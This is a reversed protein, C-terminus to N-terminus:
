INGSVNKVYLTQSSAEVMNRQRERLKMELCKILVPDVKSDFKNAFWHRSNLLWRLEAAGYICTSRRRTGTCPPYLQEELYSWKVLRVKSELDSVERASRPLEGPVGPVRVMSAWFHEDPSYTDSSWALFDKAVLSNNIYLVFERSLVFYASGSFVEINHPAADKQLNSMVPVMGYEFPVNQLEYHYAFREKKSDSPHVSELMNAGNLMKLESVLEYNSRLPFDQGCLNIIYKWQISSRLLDSLCNLDAQLRSIHAYHVLELKSAIFVNPFCSALKEMASKFSSSSKQDYHICYLNQPMYIARLVREVMIANKHVVLSFALPYGLEEESIPDSHYGRLHLYQDCNLVMSAVDEDELDVIDNNRIELTKGVEVPDHDYIAACNIEFKLSTYKPYKTNRVFQSTSWFPEVLWKKNSGTVETLSYFLKLLCPLICLLCFLLKALQSTTALCRKM